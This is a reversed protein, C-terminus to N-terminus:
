PDDDPTLTFVYKKYLIYGTESDLAHSMMEALEDETFPEGQETMFKTVDDRLLYGKKDEDLVEFAKLLVEDPAPKFKNEQLIQTMVPLFKDFQVYGSSEEDELEALIEAIDGESPCCGLSRIITGVERSDVTKNAEHDFTNFAETIKKELLVTDNEADPKDDM